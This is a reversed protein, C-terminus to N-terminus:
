QQPPCLHAIVNGYATAVVPDAGAAVLVNDPTIAFPKFGTYAGYSNKANVKGCILRMGATQQERLDRFQTSYPDKLETALRERAESELAENALAPIAQLLFIGALAWHRM